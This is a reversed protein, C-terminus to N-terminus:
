LQDLVVGHNRALLFSRFSQLFHLLIVAHICHYKEAAGPDPGSMQYGRHTIEGHAAFGNQQPRM